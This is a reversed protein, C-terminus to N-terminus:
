DPNACVCILVCMLYDRGKLKAYGGGVYLM